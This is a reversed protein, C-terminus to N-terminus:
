RPAKALTRLAAHLFRGSWPGSASGVAAWSTATDAPWMWLRARDLGDIEDDFRALSGTFLRGGPGAAGAVEGRCSSGHSSKIDGPSATGGAPNSAMSSQVEAARTEASPPRTAPLREASTQAGQASATAETQAAVTDSTAPRNAPIRNTAAASSPASSTDGAASPQLAGTIAPGAAEQKM